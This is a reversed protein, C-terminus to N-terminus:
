DTTEENNLLMFSMGVYKSMDEEAEIEEYRTKIIKSPNVKKIAKTTTDKYSKGM